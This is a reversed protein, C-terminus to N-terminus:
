LRLGTKKLCLDTKGNFRSNPVTKELPFLIFFTFYPNVLQHLLYLSASHSGWQCHHGLSQSGRMNLLTLAPGLQPRLEYARGMDGMWPPPRAQVHLAAPSQQGAEASSTTTLSCCPSPSTGQSVAPWTSVPARRKLSVAAVVVAVVVTVAAAVAAAAAQCTLMTRPPSSPQRKNLGLGAQELWGPM